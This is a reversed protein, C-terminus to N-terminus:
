QGNGFSAVMNRFLRQNDSGAYKADGIWNWWLSQGLAIVEGEGQRGVAVFGEGPYQPADVLIKAKAHDLIAIPSPRFCKIRLVSETLTDSIIEDGTVDFLETKRPETDNMRLGAPTLLENAKEVTGAMFANASVILRGGDAVFQNLREVDANLAFYLGTSALLIVDFQSLDLDRLVPEHRIIDIYHADLGESEVLKLWPNFRSADETSVRNFPTQVVLLSTANPDQPLVNAKIPVEVKQAGIEVVMTGSIKGVHQTDISVFIDCLVRTGLHGYTQTALEVRKVRAFSPPHVNVPVGTADDGAKLIRVSGDVTAGMRVMGFDLRDPQAKGPDPQAYLPTSLAISSWVLCTFLISLRPTRLTQLEFPSSM